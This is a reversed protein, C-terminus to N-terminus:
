EKEEPPNDGPDFDILAEGRDDFDVNELALRADSEWAHPVQVLVQGLGDTNTPIMSSMAEYSLFVPCGSSELRGKILQAQVMGQATFVTVLEEERM